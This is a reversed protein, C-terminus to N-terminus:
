KASVVCYNSSPNDSKALNNKWHLPQLNSLADTGGKSVPIIHDIEWGENNDASRDGYDSWRIRAGCRDLRELAPNIGPITRAKSWVNLKVGDSWANASYITM